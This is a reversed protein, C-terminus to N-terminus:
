RKNATANKKVYDCIAKKCECEPHVSQFSGGGVLREYACGGGCVGILHCQGCKSPILCMKEYIGSADNYIEALSKKNINGICFKPRGVFRHCPYVDGGSSIAIFGKCGGVRSACEIPAGGFMARLINKFNRIPFNPNDDAFWLDFISKFFEIVQEKKPLVAVSGDDNQSCFHFACSSAGSAIIGKYVEKPYDVSDKTVLSVVGIKNGTQKWRAISDVVKKHSGKGNMSIRNADNIAEPGDISTSVLFRNSSLSECWYDNLLTGNTQIMNRVRGVFSTKKQLLLSKRFHEIGALLPEGGHWLFDVSEALYSSDVIIKQLVEDSMQESCSARKPDGSHYCYSCALNCRLGVPLIMVTMKKRM